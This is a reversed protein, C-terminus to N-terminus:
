NLVPSPSCESPQKGSALCLIAECALRTDGELIQQAKLQSTSLLTAASLFTIPLIKFFPNM